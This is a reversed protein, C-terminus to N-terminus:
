DASSADGAGCDRRDDRKGSPAEEGLVKEGLCETSRWEDPVVRGDVDM